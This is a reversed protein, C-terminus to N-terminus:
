PNTTPRSATSTPPFVSNLYQINVRVALVSHSIVLFKDQLGAAALVLPGIHVFWIRDDTCDLQLSFISSFDIPANKVNNAIKRMMMRWTPLVKNWNQILEDSGDHQILFTKAFPWNLPHAPWDHVIMMPGLHRFILKEVGQLGARKMIKNYNRILKERRAPNRSQLYTKVISDMGGSVDIYSVGYSKAQPPIAKYLPNTPFLKDTLYGMETRDNWQLYVKSIFARDTFGATLLWRQLDSADMANLVNDLTEKMTAGLMARLQVVDIYGLWIRNKIDTDNENALQVLVTSAFSPRQNNITEIATNFADSGVTFLFYDNLSIWEWSAWEPLNKATLKQHRYKGKGVWVIQADDSTFYHDIIKKLLVLFETHQSKPAKVIIGGSFSELGFSKVGLQKASLNRVFISHPFKTLKITVYAADAIIQQNTDLTGTLGAASILSAVMRFTKQESVNANFSVYVGVCSDPIAHLIDEDAQKTLGLAPIAILVFVIIKFKNALAFNASFIKSYM